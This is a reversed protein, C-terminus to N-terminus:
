RRLDRECGYSDHLVATMFLLHLACGARPLWTAHKFHWHSCQLALASRLINGLEVRPRQQLAYGKASGSQPAQEYECANHVLFNPQLAFLQPSQVLVTARLAFNCCVVSCLM